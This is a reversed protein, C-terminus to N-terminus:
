HVTVGDGARRGRSPESGVQSVEHRTFREGRSDNGVVAVVEPGPDLVGVGELGPRQHRGDGEVIGLEVRDGVVEHRKASALFKRIVVSDMTRVASGWSLVQSSRAWPQTVVTSWLRRPMMYMTMARTKRTTPPSSAVTMRSCSIFAWAFTTGGSIKLSSNVICPVVIIKKTAIGIM